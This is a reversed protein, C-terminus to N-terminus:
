NTTGPELLSAVSYKNLFKIFGEYHDSDPNTVVIMDISRDYWPMVKPLEKLLNNGPGGDVIVQVGTPSEIFLSDGQGVDLVAFTLVGEEKQSFLTWFLFTALIILFLLFYWRLYTKVHLLGAKM